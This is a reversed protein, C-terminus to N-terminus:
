FPEWPDCSLPDLIMITQRILVENEASLNENELRQRLSKLESSYQKASTGEQIAISIRGIAHEIARLRIDILDNNM